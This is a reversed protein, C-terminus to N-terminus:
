IYSAPAAQKSPQIKPRYLQPKPSLEGEHLLPAPMHPAFLEAWFGTRQEVSDQFPWGDGATHIPLDAARGTYFM